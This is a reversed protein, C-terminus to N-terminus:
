WKEDEGIGKPDVKFRWEGDLKLVIRRNLLTHYSTTPKVKIKM